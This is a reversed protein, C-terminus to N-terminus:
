NSVGVFTRRTQEACILYRAKYGHSGGSAKQGASATQLDDMCTQVNAMFTSRLSTCEASQDKTMSYGICRNYLSDASEAFASGSLGVFAILALAPLKM